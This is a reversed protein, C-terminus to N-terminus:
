PKSPPVRAIWDELTKIYAPHLKSWYPFDSKAVKNMSHSAGELLVTEFHSNKAKELATAISAYSNAPIIEDSTGQVILIPQQTKEFYPIPSYNLKTDIQVEELNPVWIKSFWLKEQEAAISKELETRDITGAIYEFVKRQLNIAEHMDKGLADSNNNKWYNLDSELLTTGPCSVVIGYSLDTLENLIYPIKTAGQSSGKIGTKSLPIGSKASFVQLANTDDSLLEEMTAAEWNGESNGTGRKDYHFTTYGKKAFLIAEARSASRDANGSSTVLVLGKNFSKVPHWMTGFLQLGNSEFSIEESRLANQQNPADKELVYPVAISDVYLTGILSSFNASWKNKFNYTYYDSQLLFSISDGQVQVNQFPIRNANQELSTFFVQYGISDREIDFEITDSFNKYSFVGSFHGEKHNNREPSNHKCSALVLVIIAYYVLKM